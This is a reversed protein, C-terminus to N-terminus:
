LSIDRAYDCCLLFITCLSEGNRFIYALRPLIVDAEQGTLGPVSEQLDQQSRIPQRALLDALARLM